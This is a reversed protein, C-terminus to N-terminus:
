SAGPATSRRARRGESPQTRRHGTSRTAPASLLATSPLSRSCRRNPAPTPTPYRRQGGGLAPGSGLNVSVWYPDGLSASDSPDPEWLIRQTKYFGAVIGGQENQAEQTVGRTSVEQTGGEKSSAFPYEDCSSLTPSPPTFSSGCINGRNTDREAQTVRHLPQGQGELGEHGALTHQADNIHEAVTRVDPRATVDYEMVPIYGPDVCGSAKGTIERDCRWFPNEPSGLDGTRINNWGPGEPHMRFYTYFDNYDTSDFRTENLFSYDETWSYSIVDGTQVALHTDEIPAPTEDTRQCSTGTKLTQLGCTNGITLEAGGATQYAGDESLVLMSLQHQIQLSGTDMTWHQHIEVEATSDIEEKQGNVYTIVEAVATTIVSTCIETRSVDTRLATTLLCSTPFSTSENLAHGALESRTGNTAVVPPSTLPAFSICQILERRVGKRRTSMPQPKSCQKATNVQSANRVHHVVQAAHAPTGSTPTASAAPAIALVSVTLAGAASLACTAIVSRFM